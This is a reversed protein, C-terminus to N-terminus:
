LQQKPGDSHGTYILKALWVINLISFCATHTAPLWVLGSSSSLVVTSKNSDNCNGFLGAHM